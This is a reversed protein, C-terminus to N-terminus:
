TVRGLTNVSQGLMEDNAQLVKAGIEFARQAAIMDVLTRVPDVNSGELHGQVITFGGAPVDTAIQEPSAALTGDGRPVMTHPNDFDVIRLRGRQQGDVLVAGDTGVTMTGGAARIPGGAGQVPWGSSTVLNGAEDLNFGGDRTYLDNGELDRVVFFGRGSIALDTNRGTEIMPGSRVDVTQTMILARAAVWDRSLMEQLDEGHSPQDATAIPDRVDQGPIEETVRTLVQRFGSTAANALNNALTDIRTQELHLSQRATQLTRLV